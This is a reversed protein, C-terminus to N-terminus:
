QGAIVKWASPVFRLGETPVIGRVLDESACDGAHSSPLGIIEEPRESPMIGFSLFWTGAPLASQRILFETHKPDGMASTTAVWGHKDLYALREALASSSMTTDRLSWVFREETHWLGGDRPYFKLRGLAASAHLVSVENENGICLSAVGVSDSELAVLLFDGDRRLFIASGSEGLSDIAAQRESVTLTGDLAEVLSHVGQGEVPLVVLVSLLLTVSVVKM